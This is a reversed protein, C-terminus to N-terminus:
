EVLHALRQEVQHAVCDVVADLRGVLARALRHGGLDHQGRLAVAVVHHDRDGVVAAPDRHGGHARDRDRAAQEVGLRREGLIARALQQENM